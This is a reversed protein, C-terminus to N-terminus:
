ESAKNKEPFMSRFVVYLYFSMINWWRAINWPRLLSRWLWALGRVQFSDPAKKQRGSLVDFAGDVGIVASNAFYHWNQQLWKEQNPFGMGLLIIDPATKRISEKILLERKENFYGGQRGIIRIGPFIRQWNLSVKELNEIKSGLLYITLNKKWAARVVDIILSIMPIREQIPSDLKRAAWAIGAGDSLILRAQAAIFNLKRGPRIRMLKVPDVFFIHQPGQKKEISELIVAVAEDRTLNDIPVGMVTKRELSDIDISKYELLYDREHSSSYVPQAEMKM